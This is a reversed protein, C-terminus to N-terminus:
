NLLISAIMGEADPLTGENAILAQVVADLRRARPWTAPDDFIDKPYVTAMAQLLTRQMRNRAEGERRACAVERILRHLRICDTTIAPDREDPITERDILAFGRLTAVAEDLGAGSLASAFPEDFHERAETFLFLPIPEPALLAAHVILPEAAPHRKAAEDIALAFTKAVTLRDHYEAPADTAADLLMAPTAEFRKLYSAFSIGVRECFAAAQEHALPLGCLAASLEEAAAREGTRGEVRSLFFDAGIDKPWVRIQVPAAVGGWNPANSTVLIQASGSVPLYPRLEDRNNANDFILLIGNGEHRLREMVTSLAAEEKEDAGVWGLRVGLSVLDARLGAPEQARIWWKARYDSRHKDAYAAALTTKGVGRLGHLATIAVRGDGKALASRIDALVEDRGVFHLPVTIPINSVAYYSGSQVHIQDTREPPTPPAAVQANWFPVQESPPAAPTLYEKLRARAEQESLGYLDCRKIIASLTEAECEEIFVPLAFNPRKDVAAWEAAQQEWSSFKASLYAKSVLLLIHDAQQHRDKMWKVINGGASIEWDHLRPKHGLKMLEQGIWFAKQKDSSTYSIFIDAVRGRRCTASADHNRTQPCALPDLTTQGLVLEKGAERCSGNCGRNRNACWASGSIARRSAPPAAARARTVSSIRSTL